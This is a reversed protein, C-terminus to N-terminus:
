HYFYVCVFAATLIYIFLFLLMSFLCIMFYSLIYVHVIYAVWLKNRFDFCDTSIDFKKFQIM